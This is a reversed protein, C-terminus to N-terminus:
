YPRLGAQHAPKLDEGPNPNPRQHLAYCCTPCTGRSHARFVPFLLLNKLKLFPTITKKWQMFFRFTSIHVTFILLIECMSFYM